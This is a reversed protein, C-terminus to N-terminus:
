WRVKKGGRVHEKERVGIKKSERLNEKELENVRTEKKEQGRCQFGVGRKGHLTNKKGPQKTM